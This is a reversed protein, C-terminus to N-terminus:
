EIEETCRKDELDPPMYVPCSFKSFNCAGFLPGALTGETCTASEACWGCFPDQLCLSCERHTYCPEGPCVTMEWSTCNTGCPGNEVSGRLCSHSTACWGCGIHALCASCNTKEACIEGTLVSGFGYYTGAEHLAVGTNNDMIDFAKYSGNMPNFGLVQHLGLYTLQLGKDLQGSGVINTFPAQREVAGRDYRHILYDGTTASYDLLYNNGIYLLQEHMSFKGEDLPDFPGIPDEGLSLPLRPEVLYVKYTATNGDYMVIEDKGMYVIQFQTMELRHHHALVKTMPDPTHHEFLNVTYNGSVPDIDLVHAHGTTAHCGMFVLKHFIRDPWVGSYEPEELIIPCDIGCSRDLAHTSWEGTSPIWVLVVDNEVYILEYHFFSWIGHEFNDHDEPQLQDSTDGGKHVHPQLAKQKIGGVFGNTYGAAEQVLSLVLLTLCV